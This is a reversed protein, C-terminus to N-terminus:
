EARGGAPRSLDISAAQLIAKTADDELFAVVALRDADIHELRDPWRFTGDTNFRDDHKEFADHYAHIEAAIKDLDFTQDFTRPSAGDVAIQAVSRVVMPHFRIGSEGSYRITKEAVVIHLKLHAAPDIGGIRVNVPIGRGTLSAKLEITAGAETLLEKDIQGAYRAAFEAAQDHGGGGTQPKGDIAVTPVGHAEFYDYRAMSNPNTMPDPKPRNQHYLLVAVDARSYRELLADFALDMGVCPPCGSGTLLEALVMRKAAGRYHDLHAPNPFLAEYQADLYPELGDDSDHHSKRYLAAIADHDAKTPHALFAAATWRLEDAGDGTKAALAALARASEASYADIKMVDELTRRAETDKGLKACVLGLTELQRARTEEYQVQSQPIKRADYPQADYPPYREVGIRAFREADPLAKDARLLASAIHRADQARTIGKASALIQDGLSPLKAPDDPWAAAAATMIGLIASQAMPSDPNEKLFSSLAEVKQAPDKVSNAQNFAQQDPRQPRASPAPPATPTQALLVSGAAFVILCL